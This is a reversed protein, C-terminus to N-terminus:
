CDSFGDLSRFGALQFALTAPGAGSIFKLKLPTLTDFQGLASLDAQYLVEAKAAGSAFLMAAFAVKPLHRSVVM